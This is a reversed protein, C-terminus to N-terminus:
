LRATPFKRRCCRERENSPVVVGKFHVRITEVEKAGIVWFAVLLPDVGDSLDAATLPHPKEM